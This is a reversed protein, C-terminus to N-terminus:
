RVQITFNTVMYDEAIFVIRVNRPSLGPADFMYIEATFRDLGDSQYRGKGHRIVSRVTRNLDARTLEGDYFRVFFRDAVDRNFTGSNISHLKMEEFQLMTRPAYVAEIYLGLNNIIAEINRESISKKQSEILSNGMIITSIILSMSLVLLILVRKKNIKEM